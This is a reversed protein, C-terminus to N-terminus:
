IVPIEIKRVYKKARHYVWQVFDAIAQATRFRDRNPHWIKVFDADNEYQRLFRVKGGHQRHTWIVGKPSPIWTGKEEFEDRIENALDIFWKEAVKRRLYLKIKVM